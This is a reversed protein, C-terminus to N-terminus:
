AVVAVLVLLCYLVGDVFHEFLPWLLGWEAMTLIWRGVGPARRSHSDFGQRM